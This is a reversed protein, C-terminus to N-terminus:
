VTTVLISETCPTYCFHHFLPVACTSLEHCDGTCVAGDCFAVDHIAALCNMCSEADICACQTEGHYVDTCTGGCLNEIRANCYM